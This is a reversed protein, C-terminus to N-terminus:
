VGTRTMMVSRMVTMFENRHSEYTDTDSKCTIIFISEGDSAYGVMASKKVANDEGLTYNFELVQVNCNKAEVVEDSTYRVDNAVQEYQVLASIAYDYMSSYPGSTDETVIISADEYIYFEEIFQSSTAEYNEPIDMYIEPLPLAQYVIVTEEPLETEKETRSCGTLLLMASAMVALIRYRM